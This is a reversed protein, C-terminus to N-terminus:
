KRIGLRERAPDAVDTAPSIRNDIYLGLAKAGKRILGLIGTATDPIAKGILQLILMILPAWVMWDFDGLLISIFDQM